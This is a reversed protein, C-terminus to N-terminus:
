KPLAVGFVSMSLKGDDPRNTVVDIVGKLDGSIKTPDLSVVLVTDKDKKGKVTVSVAPHSSSIQEIEISQQSRNELVVRREIRESGEIIGFSVTTPNLRLDKKVFAVIPINISSHKPDKFQIVVRERFEGRPVANLLSVSFLFKGEHMRLPSVELYKSFTRVSKIERKQSADLQVVVERRLPADGESPAISGFDIRVPEVVVGRDIVGRLRIVAEPKDISNSVIYVSKTKSGFFGLTNFSVRVKESSGPKITMSSLAAATCGCSASVRQITLDTDGVNKVAFEHEVIAGESVTGFDFEPELLKLRPGQEAYSSCISTFLVFLFFSHRIMRIAGISLNM